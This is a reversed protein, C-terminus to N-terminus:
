RGPEEPSSQPAAEQQGGSFWRQHIRKWASGQFRM